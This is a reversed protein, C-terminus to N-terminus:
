PALREVTWAGAGHAARRYRFRDHLRSRRGQWFEAEGWAVRFGGWHEPVPVEDADAYAAELEAARRELPTRDPLVRSQESAWAGLRSGRPRSRFYAATEARSVRRVEGRVRVQREHALWNFVLAAHPRAALQRGKASEYNTYFVLGREDFAKLLVVRADPHGAADVTAVVVANPEPLDDAVARELWAAFQGVPEPALDSAELSGRRYDERLHAVDVHSMAVFTTM